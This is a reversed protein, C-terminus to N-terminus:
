WTLIGAIPDLKAGIPLNTASDTIPDNEPDTAQLPVTLAQGAPVTQDGVPLLVPAQNGPRVVITFTQQDTLVLTHDGNGNDAVTVVITYRGVDGATPTWNIAAQGYVSAPTLTAGAPLGLATFSLPDQDGDHASITLQLPQGVVAVKDGIPDL